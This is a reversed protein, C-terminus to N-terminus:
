RNLVKLEDIQFGAPRVPFPGTVRGPLLTEPECSGELVEITKAPLNPVPLHRLDRASFRRARNEPRIANLPWLMDRRPSYWRM